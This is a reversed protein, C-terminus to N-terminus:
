LILLLIIILTLLPMMILVLCGLCSHPSKYYKFPRNVAARTKLYRGYAGGTLVNYAKRKRGAKTTPIGNARALRRKARTIGLATKMGPKRRRIIKM